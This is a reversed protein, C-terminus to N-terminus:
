RTLLRAYRRFPGRLQYRGATPEEVMHVDVLSQLARDVERTDLRTATRVGGADCVNTDLSSLAMFVRQAPRPLQRYSTAIASFLAPDDRAETHAPRADALVIHHTADLGALSRRSTVLVASPSTGPLLPRVQRIDHADDLVILMRRRVLESRWQAANDDQDDTLLSQPVGLERLLQRLAARPHLPRRDAATGALDVFLTGDPYHDAADRCAAMAVTTKGVGVMGTITVIPGAADPPCSRLIGRLATLEREHAILVRQRVPTDIKASTCRRTGTGVVTASLETLRINPDIGLETTLRATIDALVTHAEANRGCRFLALALLYWIHERFPYETALARLRPVVLEARGAALDLAALRELAYLREENLAARLTALPAAVTIDTFPDGRWLALASTLAASEAEADSQEAAKRASALLMRFRHIDVASAAVRLAYGGCETRLLRGDRDGLSGRLRMAYVNLSARPRDPMRDNWVSEVLVDDSIVVNPQVLLAALLSRQRGSPVTREAEDVIVRLPGLLEFRHNTM